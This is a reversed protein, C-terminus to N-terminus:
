LEYEILSAEVRERLPALPWMDEPYEVAGEDSSTTLMTNFGAGDLQIVLRYIDREEDWLVKMGVNFKDPLKDTPYPRGRLPIFKSKWFYDKRSDPLNLDRNPDHSFTMCFYLERSIGLNIGDRRGQLSYVENGQFTKSDKLPDCGNSGLIEVFSMHGGERDVRYFGYRGWMNRDKIRVRGKYNYEFLLAGQAVCTKLIEKRFVIPEPITWQGNLGSLHDTIRTQIDAFRSARGSIIITDIRPSGGTNHWFSDLVDDVVTKLYGSILEEAQGSRMFHSPIDIVYSNEDLRIGHQSLIELFAQRDILDASSAAFHALAEPHYPDDPIRVSVSERRGKLMESYQEKIEQQIQRKLALMATNYLGKEEGRLDDGSAEVVIKRTYSMQIGSAALRDKLELLYEHIIRAFLVDLANGAVPLGHRYLVEIEQTSRYEDPSRLVRLYTIDLTGAGLDYIFVNEEEPPLGDPLDKFRSINELYFCAVANSESVLAIRSPDLFSFHDGLWKNLRELHVISFTNPHTIVLRAPIEGIMPTLYQDFLAKYSHVVVNELPLGKSAREGDSRYQLKITSFGQGIYTKLFPIVQGPKNRYADTPAPLDVISEIRPDNDPHVLIASPLFRTGAESNELEPNESLESLGRAQTSLQLFRRQLDLIADTRLTQARNEAFACVLASTGFDIGLVRQGLSKELKFKVVLTFRKEDKGDIKYYFPLSVQFRIHFPIMNSLNAPLFDLRYCKPRLREPEDNHIEIALQASSLPQSHTGYSESIEFLDKPILNGIPRYAPNEEKLRISGNDLRISLNGDGSHAFNDISLFAIPYRDGAMHTGNWEITNRCHFTANEVSGDLVLASEWDTENDSVKFILETKRPDPAVSFPIRKPPFVKTGDHQSTYVVLEYYHAEFQPAPITSFDLFLPVRVANSRTVGQIHVSSLCKGEIARAPFARGDDDLTMTCESPYIAEPLSISTGDRKLEFSCECTLKECCSYKASSEVILNALQCNRERQHVVVGGDAVLEINALPEVPEPLYQISFRDEHEGAAEGNAYFKVHYCIEDGGPQVMAHDIASPDFFVFFEANPYVRVLDLHPELSWGFGIIGSESMPSWSVEAELRFPKKRIPFLNFRKRPAMNICRYVALLDKKQTHPEGIRIQFAAAGMSAEEVPSVRVKLLPWTLLWFALVAALAIIIPAIAYIVNMTGNYLEDQNLNSFMGYLWDPVLIGAPSFVVPPEKIRINVSQETTVLQHGYFEDTLLFSYQLNTTGVADTKALEIPVNVPVEYPSQDRAGGELYQGLSSENHYKGISTSAKIGLLRLPISSDHEVQVPIAGVYSNGKRMISIDPPRVVLSRAAAGAKHKVRILFYMFSIRKSEEKHEYYEDQFDYWKLIGRCVSDGFEFGEKPPCSIGRLRFLDKLTSIESPEGPRWNARGDTMVMVFTESVPQEQYSCGRTAYFGLPAAWSLSTYEKKFNQKSFNVRAFAKSLSLGKEFCVVSHIFDRKFSLVNRRQLSEDEHHPLGFLFISLYDREPDYIVKGMDNNATELANRITSNLFRDAQRDWGDIDKYTGHHRMSGSSDILVIIHRPYTTASVLSPNIFSLLVSFAAILTGFLFGLSSRRPSM